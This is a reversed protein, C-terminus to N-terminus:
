LHYVRVKRSSKEIGKLIANVDAGQIQGIFGSGMLVCAIVDDTEIKDLCITVLEPTHMWGDENLSHCVCASYVRGDDCHHQIVTGIDQSGISALEPWFRYAVEGAFGADNFGETNVAFAVHKEPAQFVDGRVVEV